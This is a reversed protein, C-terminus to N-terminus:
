ASPKEIGVALRQYASTHTASSAIGVPATPMGRRRRNKSRHRRGEAYQKIGTTGEGTLTFLGGAENCDLRIGDIGVFLASLRGPRPRARGVDVGARPNSFLTSRM